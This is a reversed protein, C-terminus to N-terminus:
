FISFSIFIFHFASTIPYILALVFSELGVKIRVTERFPVLKVLFSLNNDESPLKLVFNDVSIRGM